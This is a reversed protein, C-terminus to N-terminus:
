LQTQTYLLFHYLKTMVFNLDIIGVSAIFETYNLLHPDPTSLQIKEKGPFYHDRFAMEYAPNHKWVYLITM